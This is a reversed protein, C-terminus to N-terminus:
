DMDNNTSQCPKKTARLASFHPSSFPYYRCYHYNHYNDHFFCLSYVFYMQAPSSEEASTNEYKPNSWSTRDKINGGKSQHVVNYRWGHNTPLHVVFYCIRCKLSVKNRNELSTPKYLRHPRLGQYNVHDTCWLNREDM